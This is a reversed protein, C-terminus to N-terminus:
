CSEEKVGLVTVWDTRYLMERTAKGLSEWPEYLLKYRLRAKIRGERAATAEIIRAREATTLDDWRIGVQEARNIAM